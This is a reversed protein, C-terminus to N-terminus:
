AASVRTVITNGVVLADFRSRRFVDAADAATHVIPEGALNFSTNLVAPVGTRDWFERILAAYLPQREPRVIQPRCSGDVHVVAPIRHRWDPRVEEAALMYSHIARAPRDFLLDWGDAHVSPALPRWIERGKMQNLDVTLNRRRPDGLISRNGLARQGVESRGQFWCVILGRALMAAVEACLVADTVTRRDFDGALTSLGPDDGETGLWVNTLLGPAFEAGSLAQDVHRAAGVAVGADYPFPPVFVDDFRGSRLVHGNAACNGAVGGALVIDRSGTLESANECLELMVNNLASQVSSAFGAYAMPERGDGPGYPYCNRTFHERLMSRFRNGQFDDSPDAAPLERGDRDRYTFVDGGTALAVHQPPGGYSSLGMLKGGEWYNFGAWQCATGYFRGLSVTNPWSALRSLEGNKGHWLSVSESEGTGDAVVVAAETFGSYYYGSAAHALHHPVFVVKDLVGLDAEAPGEGAAGGSFVAREDAEPDTLWWAFLRADYPGGHRSIFEPADWGVAVASLDTWGIGAYALTQAIAPAPSSYWAQKRRIIRETEVASILEGDRLLAASTDHRGTNLGLVWRAASM